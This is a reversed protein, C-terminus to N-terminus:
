VNENERVEITKAIDKRLTFVYHRIEIQIPNGMPAIKIIRISTEPLFGIELLRQKLTGITYIAVIQYTKGITAEDLTM